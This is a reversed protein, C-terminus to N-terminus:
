PNSPPQKGPVAYFYYGGCIKSEGRPDAISWWETVLRADTKM